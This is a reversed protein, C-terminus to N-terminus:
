IPMFRRDRPGNRIPTRCRSTPTAISSRRAKPRSTPIPARREWVGGLDGSRELITVQHGRAGFTKAAVLGSVGAGIVCVIKQKVM